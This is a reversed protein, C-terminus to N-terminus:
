VVEEPLVEAFGVKCSEMTKGRGRGVSVRFLRRKLPILEDVAESRMEVRKEM